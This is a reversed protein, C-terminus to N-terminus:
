GCPFFCVSESNEINVFFTIGIVSSTKQELRHCLKYSTSFEFRPSLQVLNNYLDTIRITLKLSFYTGACDLNFNDKVESSNLLSAEKHYVFDLVLLNIAERDYKCKSYISVIM